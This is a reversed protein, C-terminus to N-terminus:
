VGIRRYFGHTEFSGWPAAHISLSLCRFPSDLRLSFVTESHGTKSIQLGVGVQRRLLALHFNRPIRPFDGGLNTSPNKSVGRVEIQNYPPPLREPRIFWRLCRYSVHGFRLAFSQIPRITAPSATFGVWMCSRRSCCPSAFVHRSKGTCFRTWPDATTPKTTPPVRRRVRDGAFRIRGSFVFGKPFSTTTAHSTLRARRIANM